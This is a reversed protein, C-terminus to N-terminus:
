PMSPMFVTMELVLDHQRCVRALTVDNGQVDAVATSLTRLWNHACM